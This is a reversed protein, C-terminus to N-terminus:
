PHFRTEPILYKIYYQTDTILDLRALRAARELTSFRSIMDIQNESPSSGAVKENNNLPVTETSADLTRLTFDEKKLEEESAVRIEVVKPEPFHRSEPRVTIEDGDEDTVYEYSQFFCLM